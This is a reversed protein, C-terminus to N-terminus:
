PKTRRCEPELGTTSGCEPGRNWWGGGLAQFLAVTDSFRAARAQVLASATQAYSRQAELLELYSVSGLQLRRRALALSRAAAAEADADAALTTADAQLAALTDAVERFAKLVASRYEAAAQDMAAVAARQRHLNAGGAFLTESL